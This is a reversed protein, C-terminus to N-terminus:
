EADVGAQEPKKSRLAEAIGEPTCGRNAFCDLGYVPHLSLSRGQLVKFPSMQSQGDPHTPCFSWFRDGQKKPRNLLPLLERFLDSEERAPQHDVEAVGAKRALEERLVQADPDSLLQVDGGIYVRSRHGGGPEVWVLRNVKSLDMFLGSPLQLWDEQVSAM